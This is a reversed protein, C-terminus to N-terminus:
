NKDQKYDILYDNLLYKKFKRKSCNIIVEQPENFKLNITKYNTKDKPIQIPMEFNNNCNTWSLLVKNKDRFKFNLKPTQNTYLYQQFYATFNIKSYSSIFEEVQASNICQKAFKKQIQQLMSKFLSDNNIIVRLQHIINAGKYYIDSPPENNVDYIGIIPEKNVIATRMGKVYKYAANKNYKNEVFLCEGFTTFGEHIWMDAIDNTTINNGWWEHGSEHVVIYDWTKGYGSKSLDKGKYGYKFNNGYAIAGQHEMGLFPADVIGYGDEYFPYPGFWDEFTQLTNFVQEQLYNVKDKNYDLLAYRCVLNGLKGKYQKEEIIYKGIYFTINYNNIQQTTNYTQYRKSNYVTDKILKGNSIASLTDPTIITVTAGQEPEDSQHDKCPYWVSAGLGQCAVSIWPRNYKDTTWILGGDWPPNIAKQPTGAYTIKLKNTGNISIFKKPIKILYAQYYRSINEEAIINNIIGEAEIEVKNIKLPEQLDIQLTNYSTTDPILNEKNVTFSIINKGLIEEADFVPNLTINYHTVNFWNRYNSLAGRVSDAKVFSNQAKLAFPIWLFFLWTFKKM